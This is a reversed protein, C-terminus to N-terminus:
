EGLAERAMALANRADEADAWRDACAAISEGWERLINYARQLNYRAARHKLLETTSEEQCRTLASLLEAKESELEDIRQGAWRQWVPCNSAHQDPQKGAHKCCCGSEIQKSRDDM